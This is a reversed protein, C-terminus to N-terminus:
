KALDSAITGETKEVRKSASHRSSMVVFSLKSSGVGERGRGTRMGKGWGIGWGKGM